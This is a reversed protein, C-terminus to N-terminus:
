STKWLSFSVILWSNLRVATNVLRKVNSKHLWHSSIVSHMWQNQFVTIGNLNLFTCGHKIAARMGSVKLHSFSGIYGRYNSATQYKSYLSLTRNFLDQPCESVSARFWPPATFASPWFAWGWFTVWQLWTHSPSTTLTWVRGGCWVSSSTPLM